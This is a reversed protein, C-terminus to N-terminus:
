KKAVDWSIPYGIKSVWNYIAIGLIAFLYGMFGGTVPATLLAQVPTLAIVDAAPYRSYIMLIIGQILTVVLTLVGFYVASRYSIKKLNM